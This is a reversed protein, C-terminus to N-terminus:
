VSRRTFILWRQISRLLLDPIQIQTSVNLATHAFYFGSDIKDKKLNITSLLLNGAIAGRYYQQKESEAIARRFHNVAEQTDKKALYVRGLNLLISGDYGDFGLQQALEFAKQEFLLASDEKHLVLYLRGMNMYTVSVAALNKTENAFQLAKSYHFL